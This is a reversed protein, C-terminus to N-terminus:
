TPWFPHSCVKTVASKIEARRTGREDPKIIYFTEEGDEDSRMATFRQLMEWGGLLWTLFELYLCGLMWIDCSPDMPSSVRIVCEPPAYIPTNGVSASKTVKFGAQGFDSIKLTWKCVGEGGKRSHYLLINQSKIDGHYGDFISRGLSDSHTEQATEVPNLAGEISNLHRLPIKKNSTTEEPKHVCLLASAIGECQQALWQITQTDVIPKPNDEWYSRLDSNALHFILHYEENQKYTALLSILHENEV